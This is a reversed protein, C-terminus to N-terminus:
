NSHQPIKIEGSTIKAVVGDIKSQIGPAGPAATNIATLVVGKNALDYDYTTATLANDAYKTAIDVFSVPFNIVASTLTHDPSIEKQDAFTGVVFGKGSSVADFVGAGAGAAEHRIVDVGRGLMAEAAARAKSPESFTGIYVNDVQVNPNVSKAGDAFGLAGAKVDPFDFGSINGVKNSKTALGAAVGAVYGAERFNPRLNVVNKPEKGTPACTVCVFTSAPFQPAVRAIAQQFETGGGWILTTKERAFGTLAAAFKAPPILEQTKGTVGFKQEVAKFGNVVSLAYSRDKTTGSLALATTFTKKPAAAAATDASASSTTAASSSGATKNSSGCGATALVLATVIGASVLRAEM